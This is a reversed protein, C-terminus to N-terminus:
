CLTESILSLGDSFRLLTACSGYLDLYSARVGKLCPKRRSSFQSRPPSTLFTSVHLTRSTHVHSQTDKGVMGM